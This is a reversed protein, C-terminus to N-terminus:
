LDIRPRLDESPTIDITTFGDTEVSLKWWHEPDDNDGLIASRDTGPTLFIANDTPGVFVPDLIDNCVFSTNSIETNDLINNGNEDLGSTFKVGGESCNPGNPESTQVIISNKGPPGQEGMDGKDGKPGGPDGQEGKDGKEGKDGQPGIRIVTVFPLDFNNTEPLSSYIWYGKNPEMFKTIQFQEGDWIWVPSTVEGDFIADVSNDEPVRALSILNWGPKITVVNQLPNTGNNFEELNSFGDEDFDELPHADELSDFFMLEWDDDLGDDDDDLTQATISWVICTM